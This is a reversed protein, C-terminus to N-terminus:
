RYDSVGSDYLDIYRTILFLQILSSSDFLYIYFYKTTTFVKLSVLVHFFAECALKSM